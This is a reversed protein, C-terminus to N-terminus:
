ESNDGHKNRRRQPSVSCAGERTFARRPGQHNTIILFRHWPALSTFVARTGAPPVPPDHTHRQQQMAAITNCTSEFSTASMMCRDRQPHLLPIASSEGGPTARKNAHRFTRSYPVVNM